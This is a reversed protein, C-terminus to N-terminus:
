ESSGNAFLEAEGDLLFCSQNANNAEYIRRGPLNSAAGITVSRQAARVFAIASPRLSRQQGHGDVGRNLLAYSAQEM